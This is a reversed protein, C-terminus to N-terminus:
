SVPNRSFVLFSRCSYRYDFRSIHQCTHSPHHLYLTLPCSYMISLRYSKSIHSKSSPAFDLHLAIYCNRDGINQYLPFDDMYVSAVVHNLSVKKLLCRNYDICILRLDPDSDNFLSPALSFCCPVHPICLPLPFVLLVLLAICFLAVRTPFLGM